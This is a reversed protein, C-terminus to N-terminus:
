MFRLRSVGKPRGTTGSSYNLAITRDSEGSRTCPDWVYDKGEDEPALLSSWHQIGDTSVAGEVKADFVFIKSGDLGVEKAAELGVALSDPAMLFFAAGSDQLQYAVEGALYTPNAGTFIGGAMTVGLIIVPFFINNGSYLLLRDGPKFGNKRLGAALRQAYLRYTHMTLFISPNEADIFLSKTKDLPNM